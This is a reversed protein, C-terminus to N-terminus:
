AESTYTFRPTTRRSICSVLPMATLPSLTLRFPSCYLFRHHVASDHPFHNAATGLQPGDGRSATSFRSSLVCLPSLSPSVFVSAYLSFHVLSAVLFSIPLARLSKSPPQPDTLPILSVQAPSFPSPVPDPSSSASSSFVLRFVRGATDHFPTLYHHATTPTVPSLPPHSRPLISIARLRSLKSPPPVVAKKFIRTPPASTASRPPPRDPFTAKPPNSLFSWRHHVRIHSAFHSFSVM